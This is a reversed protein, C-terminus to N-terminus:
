VPWLIRVPFSKWDKIIVDQRQSSKLMVPQQPWHNIYLNPAPNEVVKVEHQTPSTHQCPQELTQLSLFAALLTKPIM